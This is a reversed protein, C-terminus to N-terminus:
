DFDPNGHEVGAVYLQFMTRYEKAKAGHAKTNHCERCLCVLNDLTSKGGQSRFVIHHVDCGYKGCIVCCNGDREIAKRKTKRFLERDQKTNKNM